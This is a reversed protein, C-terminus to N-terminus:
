GFLEELVRASRFGTDLQYAAYHQILRFLEPADVADPCGTEAAAMAKLADLVPLQLRRDARCHGCVAGGEWAFGASKGLSNGCAHCCDMEPAFGAVTMLRLALWLAQARAPQADDQGLAQLGSVLTEYLVESPENDHAIRGALELPFAAWAGREFDAKLKTQGDLLTAEALTQVERGSKWYYVIEIRNFTDLVGTLASGKRRAGKAMVAVRGRDPTLLTVIRSTESFDTSRLVLGETKEQAM